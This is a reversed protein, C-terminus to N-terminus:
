IRCLMKMEHLIGVMLDNGQAAQPEAQQAQHMTKFTDEDIIVAGNHEMHSCNCLPKAPDQCEHCLVHVCRAEGEETFGSCVFPRTSFSVEEGCECCQDEGEGQNLPNSPDNALTEGNQPIFNLPLGPRVNQSPERAPIVPPAGGTRPVNTGINQAQYGSSAAPAGMPPADAYIPIRACKEIKYGLPAELPVSAAASTWPRGRTQVFAGPASDLSAKLSPPGAAVPGQRCEQGAISSPLSPPSSLQCLDSGLISVPRVTVPAGRASFREASKSRRLADVKMPQDKGYRMLLARAKAVESHLVAQQEHTQKYLLEAATASALGVTPKRESAFADFCNKREPVMTCSDIPRAPVGLTPVPAMVEPPAAEPGQDNEQILSAGHQDEHTMESSGIGVDGKALSLSLAEPKQAKNPLTPAAAGMSEWNIEANEGTSVGGSGSAESMEGGPRDPDDYGEHEDNSWYTAITSLPQDPEQTGHCFPQIFTHENTPDLSDFWDEEERLQQFQTEQLLPPESPLRPSLSHEPESAEADAEEEQMEFFQAAYQTGIDVREPEVQTEVAHTVHEDTQNEANSIRFSRDSGTCADRTLPVPAPVPALAPQPTNRTEVEAIRSRVSMHEWSRRVIDESATKAHRAIDTVNEITNRLAPAEVHIPCSININVGTMKGFFGSVKHVGYMAVGFGVVVAIWGAYSLTGWWAASSSVASAALMSDLTGDQSITHPTGSGGLGAKLTEEAIVLGLKSACQWLLEGFATGPIWSSAASGVAGVTALTFVGTAEASRSM